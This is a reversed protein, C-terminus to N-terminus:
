QNLRAIASHLPDASVRILGSFPSDMELILFMASGASLACVTLVALVLWNRPALLGFSMFIFALWFLLVALFPLPVSNRMTALSIWRAQLLSEVLDVAKTQLVRQADNAPALQRIADAIDEAQVFTSSAAPDADGPLAEQRWMTDVRARLVQQLRQRIGATESGYRALLRDLTLVQIATQTVASDIADFSSKSSATVLGLVLATMTAVLGTGVKITDESDKHFYDEPLRTRLWMGLLVGFFTIGFVVIGIITPNM